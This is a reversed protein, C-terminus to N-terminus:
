TASRWRECQAIKQLTRFNGYCGKSFSGIHYVLRVRIADKNTSINVDFSSVARVNSMELEIVKKFSYKRTKIQM